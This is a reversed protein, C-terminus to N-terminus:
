GGTATAAPPPQLDRVVGILHEISRLASGTSLDIVVSTGLRTSDVVALEVGENRERVELAAGAASAVGGLRGIAALVEISASASGGRTPLIPALGAPRRGLRRVAVRIDTAVPNVANQLDDDERNARYTLTTIGHLDSPLDVRDRPTLIFVREAGLQGIFVGLEFVLNDRPTKLYQGRVISEDEPTLFLAAFDTSGARRVLEALTSSTPGFVGYSWVSPV